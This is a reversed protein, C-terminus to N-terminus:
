AKGKPELSLVSNMRRRLRRDSSYTMSGSAKWTMPLTALRVQGLALMIAASDTQVGGDAAKARDTARASPGQLARLRGRDTM